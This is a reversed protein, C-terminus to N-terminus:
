IPRIVLRRDLGEGTSQTTIDQRNQLELHIIRRESAPMPNLEKERRSISVEDALSRAIEKLYESKKEKYNNIDVDIYFPSDIQRRLIAKLLHQIEVLTQGNQGILIKPEDTKLKVYVTEEKEELFEIGIDFSTKQFFEQVTKKITELNTYGIM